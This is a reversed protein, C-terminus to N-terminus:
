DNFVGAKRLISALVSGGTFGVTTQIYNALNDIPNIASTFGFLAWTALFYGGVMFIASFIYNVIKSRTLNGLFGQGGHVILSFFMYQPYGLLLDVLFASLGGVVAGERKGIGIAVTFIGVDLLTVFGSTNPIPIKTYFGLVFTLSALIAFLAIQYTRNKRM